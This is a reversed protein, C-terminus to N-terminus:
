KAFSCPKKIKKDLSVLGFWFLGGLSSWLFGLKVQNSFDGPLMIFSSQLLHEFM